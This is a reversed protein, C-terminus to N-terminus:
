MRRLWVSELRGLRQSLHLALRTAGRQAREAVGEARGLRRRRSLEKEFFEEFRPFRLVSGLNLDDQTLDETVSDGGELSGSDTYGSKTPASLAAGTSATTGSQQAFVALPLM